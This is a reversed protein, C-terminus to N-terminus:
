VEGLQLFAMQPAQARTCHTIPIRPPIPKPTAANTLLEVTENAIDHLPQQHGIVSRYSQLPHQRRATTADNNSMGLSFSTTPSAPADPPVANQGLSADPLDFTIKYVIKDENAEVLRPGAIKTATAVRDRTAQIQKTPNIGANDLTAVVLECFNPELDDTILQFNSKESELEVGPPEASIDLYPATEEEELLGRLELDDEPLEETWKYPKAKQSLFWFTWDQREKAGIQNVRKIMRDPMPYPTFEPRKLIRGTTLCYFNMGGQLNGMPGM